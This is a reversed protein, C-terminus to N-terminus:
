CLSLSFYFSNPPTNQPDKYYLYGPVPQLGCSHSINLYTYLLPRLTLAPLLLTITSFLSFPNLILNMPYLQLMDSTLYKPYTKSSDPVSSATGNSLPSYFSPQLTLHFNDLESEMRSEM